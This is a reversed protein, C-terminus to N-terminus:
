LAWLKWEQKPSFRLKEQRAKGRQVISIKRRLPDQRTRRGLILLLWADMIRKAWNIFVAKGRCNTESEKFSSTITIQQRRGLHFSIGAKWLLLWNKNVLLLLLCEFILVRNKWFVSLRYHIYSSYVQKLDKELANAFSRSSTFPSPPTSGSFESLFPRSVQWNYLYKKIKRLIKYFYYLIEFFFPHGRDGRGAGLDAKPLQHSSNKM